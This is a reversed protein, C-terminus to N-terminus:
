PNRKVTVKDDYLNIIRLTDGVSLSESDFIGNSYLVWWYMDPNNFAKYAILDPRYMDSLKVKYYKASANEYKSMDIGDWTDITTYRVDSVNDKIKVNKMGKYRSTSDKSAETSKKTQFCSYRNQVFNSTTSKLKKVLENNVISM